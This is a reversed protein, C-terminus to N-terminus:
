LHQVSLIIKYSIYVYIVLADCSSQMLISINLRIFTYTPFRYKNFFHGNKFLQGGGRARVDKQRGQVCNYVFLHPM